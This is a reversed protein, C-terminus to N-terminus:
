QYDKLDFDTGHMKYVDREHNTWVLVEPDDVL